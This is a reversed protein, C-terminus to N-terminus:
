TKRRRRRRTTMTLTWRCRWQTRLLETSSGATTESRIRLAGDGSFSDRRPRMLLAGDYSAGRRMRQQGETMRLGSQRSPRPQQQHQQRSGFLDLLSSSRSGAPSHVFEVTSGRYLTTNEDGASFSAGGFCCLGSRFPSSSRKSATSVSTKSSKSLRKLRREPPTMPSQPDSSFRKPLKFTTSKFSPFTWRSSSNSASQRPTENHLPVNPPTLRRRLPGGGHQQVPEPRWRWNAQREELTM